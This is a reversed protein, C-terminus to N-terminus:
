RGLVGREPCRAQRIAARNGPLWVSTVRATPALSVDDLRFTMQISEAWAHPGEELSVAVSYANSVEALTSGVGIGEATRFRQDRVDLGQVSWAICPWERVPMIIAPQVTAGQLRVELAPQFMGERFLDILRTRERGVLSYVDDVSMGLELQGARGPALLLAPSAQGAPRVPGALAVLVTITFAQARLRRGSSRM